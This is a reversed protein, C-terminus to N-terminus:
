KLDEAKAVLDLTKQLAVRAVETPNQQWHDRNFMEISIPGRYDIMNLDKLLHVLPLIGDGPYIRHEDRLMERPPDQPVDNWHFDAIFNGNLHKVGNFGSSGRYLHFTDMILCADRDDIDLAIAAAQGLRHIGKFFGVFEFAAIIGYEERAIKLLEKYRKIGLSLDFDERDPVPIAAIHKSGLAAAMRMRDKTKELSALWAPEEMPMGNWLGIVNPVFLGLGKIESALDNLNGGEQEYKELEEVWIEIGNYGTQKAINIKDKLATPRITSTNLCIPWHSQGNQYSKTEEATCSTLTALTLPASTSVQLFHRRKM